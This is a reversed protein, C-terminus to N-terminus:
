PKDRQRITLKDVELGRGGEGAREMGKGGGKGGGGRPLVSCVIVIVVVVEGEGDGGAVGGWQHGM